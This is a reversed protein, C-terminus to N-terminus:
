GGSINEAHYSGASKGSLQRGADYLQELIQIAAEKRIETSRYYVNSHTTCLTLTCTCKKCGDVCSDPITYGPCLMSYFFQPLYRGFYIELQDIGEVSLQVLESTPASETYSSKMELLKKFLRMRLQERVHCSAEHSYLSAKRVCVARLAICLIVGCTTLLLLQENVTKNFIHSLVNALLAVFVINCLLSFWQMAVQKMIYPKTEPMEKLLRKDIM